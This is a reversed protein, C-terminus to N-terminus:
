LQGGCNECVLLSDLSKSDSDSPDMAILGESMHISVGCELCMCEM